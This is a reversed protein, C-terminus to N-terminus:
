FQMLLLMLLLLHHHQNHYYGWVQSLTYWTKITWGGSFLRVVTQLPLMRGLFLPCGGGFIVALVYNRDLRPGCITHQTEIECDQVLVPFHGERGSLCVLFFLEFFGSAGSNVTGKRPTAFQLRNDLFSFWM